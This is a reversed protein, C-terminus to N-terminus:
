GMQRAPDLLISLDDEDLGSDERAVERVTRGTAVAKKAIAAARDYGISSALATVTSFSAELLQRCRESDAELGRICKEEFNAAAAALLEISELINSAILPMMVNLEFNGCSTAYAIAADHGFVQACVMLLSEAIVPNVKGPMMSSGPQVAPVRLEGLGCRPGSGLWRVDNAIKSLSIACNRLSASLFGIGDRAGQAEFHNVAERFPLQTWSAIQGAVAKGFGPPANLGTGVATGGVPLEYIWTLAAEIREVSCEVQRAYGGFEQGLRMPVADQLHTRGVKIIDSFDSAKKALATQLARLVPLLREQVRVAAAIHICSPIVDNSSQSRNVEDNPHAHALSGIVENANMNTSTGSGTQYIDVVFEGDHAGRAVEQAALEIARAQAPPLAGLEGNVKAAAAKLLGLAQLFPRSFRIGSIPFNEVARQTAAGYLRAAPVRVAGLSDREIRTDM